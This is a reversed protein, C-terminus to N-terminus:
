FPIGHVPCAGDSCKPSTHAKVPDECICGAERLLGYKATLSKAADVAARLEPTWGSGAADGGDKPPDFPIEEAAPEPEVTASTPSADPEAPARVTAEANMERSTKVAGCLVGVGIFAARPVYGDCNKEILGLVAAVKEDHTDADLVYGIAARLRAATEDDIPPGNVLGATAPPGTPAEHAGYEEAPTASYGALTVIWRAASAIARSTARTQAMGRLAYDDRDHWTHETRSCMGEGAAILVGDKFVEVRAEWSFGDVDYTIEERLGGGDKRPFYRKVTATYQVREPLGTAPDNVRKSWCPVVALGLFTALTQWGEVNVHYRDEWVERGDAQVVKASGVKTRMGQRKIVDDLTTAMEAAIEVKERATAAVILDTSGMARPAAVAMGAQVLPHEEVVEADVPEEDQM